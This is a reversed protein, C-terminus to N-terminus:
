CFTSLSTLFASCNVWSNLSVPRLTIILSMCLSGAPSHGQFPTSLLFSMVVDQFGLFPLASSMM